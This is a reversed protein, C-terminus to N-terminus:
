VAMGGLSCVKDRFLTTAENLPIAPCPVGVLLQREEVFGRRTDKCWASAKSLVVLVRVYNYTMTIHVGLRPSTACAARQHLHRMPEALRVAKLRPWYHVVQM